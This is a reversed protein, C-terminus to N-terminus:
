DGTALPHAGKLTAELQKQTVTTYIQTTSLQSHGLLEQVVRMDAGNELLHTAFSHRLAHPHMNATEGQQIFIKELRHSIGRVTIPEARQNLWLAEASKNKELLFQERQLLYHKLKERLGPVLPVERSKNGKGLVKLMTQNNFIANIKISALESIRLGTAYLMNLMMADRGSPFDTEEKAKEWVTEIFQVLQSQSYTKPLKKETKMRPLTEFPNESVRGEAKLMQWISRLASIKRKRSKAEVDQRYLIRLYFDIHKRSINVINETEGLRPSLIKLFQKLDGLYARQSQESMQAAQMNQIVLRSLDAFLKQAEDEASDHM